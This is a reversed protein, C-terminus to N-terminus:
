QGVFTQMGVGVSRWGDVTIDWYSVQDPNQKRGTGKPKGYWPIENPNLTGIALRLGGGVKAFAFQVTGGQLRSRLEEHSVETLQLSAKIQVPRDNM